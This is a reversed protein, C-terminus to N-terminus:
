LGAYFHSPVAERRVLRRVLNILDTWGEVRYIRKGNLNHEQNYRQGWLIAHGEPHRNSWEYIHEVKDDVLIDGEILEKRGTHIVNKHSIDFLMELWKEREHVWTESGNFPSTVVVIDVLVKLAEVADQSGDYPPIGYCGGAKKLIEYVDDALHKHDPFSSFMDWTRVDDHNYNTGAKENLIRLTATVFDALVGDVDLLLIPKSSMM